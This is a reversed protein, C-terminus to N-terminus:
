TAGFTAIEPIAPVVVSYGGEQLPEFVVTYGYETAPQKHPMDRPDRRETGDAFVARLAAFNPIPLVRWHRTRRGRSVISARGRRLAAGAQPWSGGFRRS